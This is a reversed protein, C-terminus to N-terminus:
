HLTRYGQVLKQGLAREWTDRDVRTQVLLLTDLAVLLELIEFLTNQNRSVNETTTDIDYTPLRQTEHYLSIRSRSKCSRTLMTM